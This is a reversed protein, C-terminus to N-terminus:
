QREGWVAYVPDSLAMQGAYKDDEPRPLGRLSYTELQAFRGSRLFYELVIGMREFEHCNQWLNIVKPPFWRNSFTVVFRAGPRLVRAIEEFVEFPRVLYEVSVTCVAGDFAADAFPLRPDLNLDHVVREGLAPNAALEEANMGLGSVQSPELAAPLHSKWSSMLDLLRGGRPLLRGYLQAIQRAATRDIHDVLRANGYFASDDAAALRAFPADAWFDTPQGRWRAQMGPGNETVLAAFDHCQGGREAGPDWADLLTARVTLSRGALPPNLEVRLDDGEIAALRFPTRDEPYFDRVGAIFGKPYYRGARPEVVGSRLLRTNFRRRPVLLCDSPQYAPIFEGPACRREFRHGVTQGVLGTELFPPLVDRWLNLKQLVQVDAHRAIESEWGVAVELAVVSRGSAVGVRQRPLDRVESLSEEALLSDSVLEM